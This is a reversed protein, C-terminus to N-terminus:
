WNHWNHWNHWNNWNHWHNGWHPGHGGLATPDLAESAAVQRRLESIQEAIATKAQDVAPSAPTPPVALTATAIVVGGVASKLLAVLRQRAQGRVEGEHM